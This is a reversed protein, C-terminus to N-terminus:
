TNTKKGHIANSRLIAGITAEIIKDKIQAIKDQKLVSVDLFRAFSELEKKTKLHETLLNVGDERSGLSQLQELLNASDGVNLNSKFKQEKGKTKILKIELRYDGNGIEALEEPSLKNVEAVVESLFKTIVNDNKM